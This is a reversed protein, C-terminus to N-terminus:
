TVLIYCCIYCRRCCLASFRPARRVVFGPSFPLSFAPLRGCVLGIAERIRCGAGLPLSDPISAPMKKVCDATIQRFEQGEEQRMFPGPVLKNRPNIAVLRHPPIKSKSAYGRGQNEKPAM